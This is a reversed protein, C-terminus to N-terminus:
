QSHPDEIYHVVEEPSMTDTLPPAAAEQLPFSLCFYMLVTCIITLHGRTARHSIAWDAWVETPWAVVTSQLRIHWQQCCILCTISKSSWPVTGLNIRVQTDTQGSSSSSSFLRQLTKRVSPRKRKDLSWCSLVLSRQPSHCESFPKM